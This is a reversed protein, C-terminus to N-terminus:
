SQADLPHDAAVAGPPVYPNPGFFQDYVWALYEVVPKFTPEVTPDAPDPRPPLVRAPIGITGEQAQHIIVNLVLYYAAIKAVAWPMTIATHWEVTTPTARQDLEGFILKCDWASTEFSVNNAYDSSIDELAQNKEAPQPQSQVDEPM